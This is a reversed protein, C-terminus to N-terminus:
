FCYKETFDFIDSKVQEYTFDNLIEHRAGEYLICETSHGSKLLGKYVAEVGSGFGGVPDDKGSVLLIPIERSLNEYWDSRNSNKLLRMLDGMASVSFKFTCLPDKAYRERVALDTSLWPNPAKPTADKFRKNYSGFALTDVLPSVYREGRMRKILAILALGADAAPNPGGTGMVILADPKIYQEAALRVIFSGMSHGMLVYPRGEKKYLSMVGEAFCKVDECLRKWGDRKAIFGLEEADKVTDGHGLHDYGFALYGESALSRMFHEYRGIYETMGHVVHFFGRISCSPEFVVGSLMHIGDSSPIRIEKKLIEM